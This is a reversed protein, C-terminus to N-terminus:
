ALDKAPDFGCAPATRCADRLVRGTARLGATYLLDDRGEDVHPLVSDLVLKRVNEPHFAAYHAGTKTGYSVGDVTWQRVGLARRLM